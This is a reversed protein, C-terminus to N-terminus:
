QLAYFPKKQKTFIRVKNISSCLNVEWSGEQGKGKEKSKEFIQTFWDVVKVSEVLNM